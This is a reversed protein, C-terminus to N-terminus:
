TIITIIIMIIILIIMITIIIYDSYLQKHWMIGIIILIIMIAIITYDSYLQTHWMIIIIIITVSVHYNHYWVTIVFDYYLM